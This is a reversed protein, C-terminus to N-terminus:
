VVTIIIIDYASQMGLTQVRLCFSIGFFVLVAVM